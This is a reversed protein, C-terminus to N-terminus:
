NIEIRVFESKIESSRINMEKFIIEILRKEQIYRLREKTEEETYASKENLVYNIYNWRNILAQVGNLIDKKDKKIVLKDVM